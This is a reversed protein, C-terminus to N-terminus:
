DGFRRNLYHTKRRLISTIIKGVDRTYRLSFDEAGFIAKVKAKGQKTVMGEAVDCGSDREERAKKLM